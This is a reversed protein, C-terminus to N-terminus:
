ESASLKQMSDIVNKLTGLMVYCRYRYRGPKVGNHKDRVRFVCNWKVVRQPGFRFRGYGAHEFGPSPQQPSYIGMAHM